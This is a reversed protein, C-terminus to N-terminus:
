SLRDDDIEIAFHEVVKRRSIVRDVLEAIKDTGRLTARARVCAAAIKGLDAETAALLWERKRAREAALYSNM